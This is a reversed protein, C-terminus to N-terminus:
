LEVEKDKDINVYKTIHTGGASTWELELVSGSKVVLYKTDTAEISDTVYGEYYTTIYLPNCLNIDDNVTVIVNAVKRNRKLFLNLGTFIAVTAVFCILIAILDQM